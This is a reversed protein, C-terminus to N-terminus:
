CIERRKRVPVMVSLGRGVVNLAVGMDVGHRLRLVAYMAKGGKVCGCLSARCGVAM